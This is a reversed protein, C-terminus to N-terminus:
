EVPGTKGWAQGARFARLRADLKAVMADQGTALALARAKEASSVASDFQRNAAYAVALTDLISPYTGGSLEHARLALRLAEERAAPVAPPPDTALLWAVNNLMLVNDPQLKLMREYFSWARQGHGKQWLAAYYSCMGEFSSLAEWGAAKVLRFQNSAEAMQGSELYARTLEMRWTPREMTDGIARKLYPVAREPGGQEILAVGMVLNLFPCRPNKQVLAKGVLTTAETARNLLVLAMGANAIFPTTAPDIAMAKEFHRLAAEAQGTSLLSEGYNNNALANDPLSKLVHAFATGSNQWHPLTARTQWACAALLAVGLIGGLVTRGRGRSMLTLAVWTIAIALGISPLYTFRDAVHVVGVRVIGIVPVLLGLFWFWGAPIARSRRGAVVLAVTLLVLVLAAAASLLLSTSLDGYIMRLDTPLFTKKLYFLYAVPVAVFREVWPIADASHIAQGVSQTYYTLVCFLVCLAWFLVKESILGWWAVRGDARRAGWRELPWYDLLLLLFPLTVLIPKTLLGLAMFLAAPVDRGMVPRRSFWTYSLLSLLFFLGSLVDKREAIWAVSEVRLPHWAFLAAVFVAPWLRKTWVHLLLFLLAANFAHLLINTFHFGFPESGFVSADVMYSLWMVPLWYSEYVARGAWRVGELTLGKRVMENGSVYRDDDFNLFDYGTAPWFLAVTLAFLLAAVLAPKGYKSGLPKLGDLM